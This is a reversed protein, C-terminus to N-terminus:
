GNAGLWRERRAPVAARFSPREREQALCEMSRDANVAATRDSCGGSAEVSREVQEKVLTQCPGPLSFRAMWTRSAGPFRLRSHSSKCTHSKTLAVAGHLRFGGSEAERSPRHRYCIIFM